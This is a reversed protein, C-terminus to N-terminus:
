NYFKFNLKQKYFLFNIKNIFIILQLIPSNKKIKNFELNTKVENILRM